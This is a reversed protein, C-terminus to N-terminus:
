SAIKNQEESFLEEIYPGGALINLVLIRKEPYNTHINLTAKGNTWRCPSNEVVDWGELSEDSLYDTLDHVSNNSMIFAQGVLVGLKRRDDVFAGITECPRSTRSIINVINIGEPIIFVYKGNQVLHPEIITGLGTELHLNPDNTLSVSETKSAINNYIARSNIQSYIPEVMSRQVNLPAAADVDWTKTENFLSVVRHNTLFANRNGTDLYSETLMGNAWIVSHKETEIHYYDYSTISRDYYISRGNVLMRVPVFNGDFFLCHEPTILLDQNPVNDAIAGKLVRVPYGALDDPQNTKVTVHKKGIWTVASHIVQNTQWDFTEIIDNTSITEIVMTGNPTSIATGALFCVDITVNGDSNEGLTYGTTQVDIIHLTISSGDLLTITMHDKDPFKVSSIQSRQIDKLTISDNGDFDQITSSVQTGNTSAKGAIVLGKNETGQLSIVGGTSTTINASGGSALDLKGTLKAPDSFNAVATDGVYLDGITGNSSNVVSRDYLYLSEITSNTAMTLTKGNTIYTKGPYNTGNVTIPNAAGGYVLVDGYGGSTALDPTTGAYPNGIKYIRDAETGGPPVFSYYWLGSEDESYEALGIAQANNSPDNPDDVEDQWTIANGDSDTTSTPLAYTSIGVSRPAIFSRAQIPLIGGDQGFDDLDDLLAEFKLLDSM